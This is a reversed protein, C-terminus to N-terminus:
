LVVLWRCAMSCRCTRWSDNVVLGGVMNSDVWQSRVPGGSPRRGGIM